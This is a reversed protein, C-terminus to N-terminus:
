SPSRGRCATDPCRSPDGCAPDRASRGGTGVLTTAGQSPLNREGPPVNYLVFHDFTGRPADPDDVIIAISKTEPPVASWTLPPSTSRGECTYDAPIEGSNAFATSTVTLTKAERAAAPLTILLIFWTAHRM